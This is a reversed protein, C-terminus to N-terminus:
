SAKEKNATPFLRDREIGTAECLARQELETPMRVGRVIKDLTFFKIRAKSALDEKALPGNAALWFHLETLNITRM